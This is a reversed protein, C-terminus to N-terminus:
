AGAIPPPALLGVLHALREDSEDATSRWRRAARTYIDRAIPDHLHRAIRECAAAKDECRETDIQM